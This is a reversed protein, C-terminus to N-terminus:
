HLIQISEDKVIIHHFINMSKKDLRFIDISWQLMDITLAHGADLVNNINIDTKHM